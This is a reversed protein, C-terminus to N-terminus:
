CDSLLLLFFFSFCVCVVHSKDINFASFLTKLEMSDVIRTMGAIYLIHQCLVTRAKYNTKHKKKKGVIVSKKTELIPIERKAVVFLSDFEARCASIQISLKSANGNEWKRIVQRTCM